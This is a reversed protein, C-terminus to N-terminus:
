ELIHSKSFREPKKCFPVNFEGKRNLRIMGNFDARNLFLFKLPDRSSVCFSKEIIEMSSKLAKHLFFRTPPMSSNKSSFPM